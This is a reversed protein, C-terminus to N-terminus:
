VTIDEDTEVTEQTISEAADAATESATGQTVTGATEYAETEAIETASEQAAAGAAETVAAEAAATTAEQAAEGATDDAAIEAATTAAEQTAAGAAETAATTAEQTAADAAETAATTAEQTVAGSAETQALEQARKKQDAQNMFIVVIAALSVLIVLICVLISIKYHREQIPDRESRVYPNKYMGAAIQRSREESASASSRSPRDGAARLDETKVNSADENPVGENAAEGDTFSYGCFVCFKSGDENEQGCKSCIM